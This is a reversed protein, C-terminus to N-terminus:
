SDNWEIQFQSKIEEIKAMESQAFVVKYYVATVVMRSLTDASRAYRKDDKLADHLKKRIQFVHQPEGPARTLVVEPEYTDGRDMPVIGEWERVDGTFTDVTKLEASPLEYLELDDLDELTVNIEEIEEEEKPKITLEEEEEDVDENIGLQEIAEAELELKKPAPAPKPKTPKETLILGLTKNLAKADVSKKDAPFTVKKPQREETTTTKLSSRKPQPSAEPSPKKPKPAPKPSPKKNDVPTPKKNDSPSPKPKPKPTPRPPSPPPSEQDSEDETDYVGAGFEDESQEDSDIEDPESEGDDEQSEEDESDDYVGRGFGDSEYDSGQEDPESESSGFSYEESDGDSVEDFVPLSNDSDSSSSLSM